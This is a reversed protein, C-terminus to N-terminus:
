TYMLQGTDTSNIEAFVDADGADYLTTVSVRYRRWSVVDGILRTTTAADVVDYSTTSRYEDDCDGIGVIQSAVRYGLLTTGPSVSPPTWEVLITRM